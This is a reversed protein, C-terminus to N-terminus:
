REIEEKQLELDDIAEEFIADSIVFAAFLFILVAIFPNLGAKMSWFMDNGPTGPIINPLVGYYWLVHAMVKLEPITDRFQWVAFGALIAFVSGALAIIKLSDLPCAGMLTGGNFFFLLSLKYPCGFAFSAMIHGLEHILTGMFIFLIFLGFNRFKRRVRESISEDEM